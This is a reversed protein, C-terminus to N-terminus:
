RVEVVKIAAAMRVGVVVDCTLTVDDDLLKESSKIAESTGKFKLLRGDVRAVLSSSVGKKGEVDYPVDVNVELLKGKIEVQSM